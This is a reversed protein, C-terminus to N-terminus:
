IPKMHNEDTFRWGNKMPKQGPGLFDQFVGQGVVAEGDQAADVGVVVVADLGVRRREAPRPEPPQPVQRGLQWQPQFSLDSHFTIALSTLTLTLSTYEYTLTLSYGLNM